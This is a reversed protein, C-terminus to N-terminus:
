SIPPIPTAEASVQVPQSVDGARASYWRARAAAASGRDPAMTNRAEADFEPGGDLAWLYRDQDRVFPVGGANISEVGRVKSHAARAM